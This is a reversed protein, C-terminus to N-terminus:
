ILKLLEEIDQQKYIENELDFNNLVLFPINQNIGDILLKQQIIGITKGKDLETIKNCHTLVLIFNDNILNKEILFVLFNHFEENIRGNKILLFVKDQYIQSKMLDTVIDNWIEENKRFKDLFGRTDILNYNMIKKNDFDLRQIDYIKTKLTGPLPGTTGKPKKNKFKFYNLLSGILTSKGSGSEGIFLISKWKFIYNSNLIENKINLCDKYEKETIALKARFGEKIKFLEKHEEKLEFLSQKLGSCIYNNNESNLKLVEKEHLLNHIYFSCFLIISGTFIHFYQHM